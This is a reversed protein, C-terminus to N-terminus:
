DKNQVAEESYPYLVLGFNDYANRAVGLSPKFSNTKYTAIMAQSVGLKVALSSQTEGKILMDLIFDKVRISEM